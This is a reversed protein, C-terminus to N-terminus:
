QKAVKERVDSHTSTYARSFLMLWCYNVAYKFALTIIGEERIRRGSAYTPLRFTWRVKGAKIIRKAVDVDEAWYTFGTNYGDIKELAQKRVVYNGGQLMAGVRFIRYIFLYAVYGFLYFFKWLTQEFYSLDDYIFPGSLAVLSPDEEFSHLVFSLWGAPMRTDADVNAILEGKAASLGAARAFAIGKRMERVIRVGPHSLAVSETGDTSANDVVIIEAEANTRGIEAEIASLAIGLSPEENYAPIVFTIDM